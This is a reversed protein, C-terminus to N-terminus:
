QELTERELREDEAEFAKENEEFEMDLVQMTRVLEVFDDQLVDVCEGLIKLYDPEGVLNEGNYVLLMNGGEEEVTFPVNLILCQAAIPLFVYLPGFRWLKSIFFGIQQTYDMNEM